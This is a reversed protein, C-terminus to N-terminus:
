LDVSASCFDEIAFLLDDQSSAPSSPSPCISRAPLRRDRMASRVSQRELHRNSRGEGNRGGFAQCYQSTLDRFEGATITKNDCHLLPRELDYSLGMFSRKLSFNAKISGIGQIRTM